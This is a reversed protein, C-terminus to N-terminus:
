EKLPLISSPSRAATNEIGQGPWILPFALWGPGRHKWAKNRVARWPPASTWPCPSHRGAASCPSLFSFFRINDEAHSLTGLVAYPSAKTGGDVIWAPSSACTRRTNRPPPRRHIPWEVGSISYQTTNTTKAQPQLRPLRRRSTGKDVEWIGRRGHVFSALARSRWCLSSGPRPLGRAGRSAVCDLPVFSEAGTPSLWQTAIGLKSGVGWRSARAPLRSGNSGNSGNALNLFPGDGPTPPTLWDANRLRSVRAKDNRRIQCPGARNRAAMQLGAAELWHFLALAAMGWAVSGSAWVRRRELECGRNVRMGRIGRPSRPTPRTSPAAIMTARAPACVATGPASRASPSHGHHGHRQSSCACSGKKLNSFPPSGRGARGGRRDGRRSRRGGCRDTMASDHRQRESEGCTEQETTRELEPKQIWERKSRREAECGEFCALSRQREDM